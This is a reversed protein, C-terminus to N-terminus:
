LENRVVRSVLPMGAWRVLCRKEEVTDEYAEVWDERMDERTSAEQIRATWKEMDIECSALKISAAGLGFEPMGYTEEYCVSFLPLKLVDAKLFVQNLLKNSIGDRYISHPVL